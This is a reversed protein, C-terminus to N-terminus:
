CPHFSNCEIKLVLLTQGDGDKYDNDVQQQQLGKSKDSQQIYKSIIYSPIPLILAIVSAPM